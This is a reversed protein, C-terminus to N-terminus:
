PRSRSRPSGSAPARDEGAGGRPQHAQNVVITRGGFQTGHLEAIATDAMQPSQFEVFAFGRPKGTERDTIIKVQSVRRSGTGEFFARIQDESASYPLNGVYLRNGM